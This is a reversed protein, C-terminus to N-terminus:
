FSNIKLVLDLRDRANFHQLLHHVEKKVTGESTYILNAITANNQGELILKAIQIQRDTLNEQWAQNENNSPAAQIMKSLIAQGVWIQGANLTDLVQEFRQASAFANLYGSIGLQFLYTAMLANPTTDLYLVKVEEKTAKAILTILCDPEITEDILLGETSKPIFNEIDSVQISCNLSRGIKLWHQVIDQDKSIIHFHNM